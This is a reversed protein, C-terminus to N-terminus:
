KDLLPLPDGSPRSAKERMRYFQLATQATKPQLRSFNIFYQDIQTSFQRECRRAVAPSNDHDGLFSQGSKGARSNARDPEKRFGRGGTRGSSRVSGVAGRGGTRLQRRREVGAIPSRPAQRRRSTRQCPVPSAFDSSDARTRTQLADAARAVMSKILAVKRPDAEVLQSKVAESADVFLKVLNQRPIDPRSWVCLALDGDDCAKELLTSVGFDSFGLGANRATNSVM